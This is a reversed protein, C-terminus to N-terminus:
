SNFDLKFKEVIVYVFSICIIDILCSLHFYDYSSVDRALHCITGNCDVIHPVSTFTHGIYSITNAERCM